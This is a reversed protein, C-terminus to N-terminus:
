ITRSCPGLLPTNRMLSTGRYEVNYAGCSWPPRPCVEEEGERHSSASPLRLRLFTHLPVEGM